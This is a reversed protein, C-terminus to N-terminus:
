KPRAYYDSFRSVYEPSLLASPDYGPSKKILESSLNVFVRETSWNIARIWDSPILVMKGPMGEETDVVLYRISWDKDDVMFDDLRGVEEEEDAEIHYGTVEKTSRLDPNEGEEAETTDKQEDETGPLPLSEFYQSSHWQQGRFGYYEDLEIQYQHTVPKDVDIDPSNIVKERTLGVSFTESEWDPREFSAPSILVKRGPMQWTGMDVVLYRIIWAVDDFYFEDVRGIEGDKALIKYGYLSKISRLM